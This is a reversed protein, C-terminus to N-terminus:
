GPRVTGSSWGRWWTLRDPRVRVLATGSRSAGTAAVAEGASRGGSSLQELVYVEGTGRFLVGCMSRARWASAVDVELAVRATPGVGAKGLFEVGIAAVVEGAHVGWRVPLALPGRSTEFALAGEGARPLREAVDEPLGELPDRSSRRWMRFREHSSSSAGLRGWASGVRDREVVLGAAPELEAFVRGPPTWALPIRRADVAYGAFFRANKKTFRFAARLAAPAAAFSESWTDPDLADHIRAHGTFCVIRDEGEVLGAFRQDARWAAAKVSSRSTTVWVRDDSLAFVAPTLHPGSSTLVATRCLTGKELTHLADAPLLSM